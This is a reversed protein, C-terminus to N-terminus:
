ECAIPEAQFLLLTGRRRARESFCIFFRSSAAKQANPGQFKELLATAVATRRERLLVVKVAPAGLWKDLLHALAVKEALAGLWEDLLRALAM